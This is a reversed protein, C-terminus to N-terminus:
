KRTNTSLAKDIMVPGMDGDNVNQQDHGAAGQPSSSRLKRAYNRLDLTSFFLPLREKSEIKQLEEFSFLCQQLIYL